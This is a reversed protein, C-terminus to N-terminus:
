SKLVSDATAAPPQEREHIEDRDFKWGSSNGQGSLREFEELNRKAVHEHVGSKAEDTM